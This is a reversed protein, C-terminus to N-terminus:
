LNEQALISFTRWQFPRNCRKCKFVLDSHMSRAHDKLVSIRKFVRDCSECKIGPTLSKCVKEHETLSYKYKFNKMCKDCKYLLIGKHASVHVEYINRSRFQKDCQACKHPLTKTHVRRHHAHLGRGAPSNEEM